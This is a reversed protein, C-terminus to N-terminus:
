LLKEFCYFPEDRFLFIVEGLRLYGMAGYLNLAAANGSYADLRICSYKTRVAFDEIFSIFKKAVGRGQVEPHVSLRHIVLPRGDDESWRIQSYEPSQEGNISAYAICRDNRKLIYGFSNSIDNNIIGATPYHEDWQYIGKSEMAKICETIMGMIAATDEGAAKEIEINLEMNM